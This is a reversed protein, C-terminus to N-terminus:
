ELTALLVSEKRRDEEKKKKGKLDQYEPTSREKSEDQERLHNEISNLAFSDLSGMLRKWKKIKKSQQEFKLRRDELENMKEIELNKQLRNVVRAFGKKSKEKLKDKLRTGPMFRPSVSYATSQLRSTLSDLSGNRVNRRGQELAMSYM